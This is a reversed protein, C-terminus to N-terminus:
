TKKKKPAAAKDVSRWRVVERWDGTLVDRTETKGDGLVVEV